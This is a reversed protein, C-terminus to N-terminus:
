TCLHHPSLSLSLTMAVSPWALYAWHPELDQSLALSIWFVLNSKIQYREDM